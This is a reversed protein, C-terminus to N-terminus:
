FVKYISNGEMEFLLEAKRKISTVQPAQQADWEEQTGTFLLEDNNNYVEVTAANPSEFNEWEEMEELAMLLDEIMAAEETSVEAETKLSDSKLPTASLKAVTVILVLAVFAATRFFKGLKNNNSTKM